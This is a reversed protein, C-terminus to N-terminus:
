PSPNPTGSPGSNKFGEYKQMIRNEHSDINPGKSGIKEKAKKKQVNLHPKFSITEDGSGYTFTAQSAADTRRPGVYCEKTYPDIAMCMSNPAKSTGKKGGTKGGSKDIEGRQLKASTILSGGDWKQDVHNCYWDGSWEDVNLVTVSESPKLEPYGLLTLQATITPGNQNKQKNENRNQDITNDKNPNASNPDRNDIRSRNLLPAGMWGNEVYGKFGQPAGVEKPWINNLPNNDNKTSDCFMSMYFIAEAPTKAAIPIQFNGQLNPDKLDVNPKIGPLYKELIRKTADSPKIGKGFNGKMCSNCLKHMEDHAVVQITKKGIDFSPSISLIEFNIQPMMRGPYGFVFSIQMNPQFFGVFQSNQNEVIFELSCTDNDSLKLHWSVVYPTVNRDGVTLLFDPDYPM